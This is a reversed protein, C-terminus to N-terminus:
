SEMRSQASRFSHQKDYETSKRFKDSLITIEVAFTTIKKHIVLNKGLKQTFIHNTTDKQPM